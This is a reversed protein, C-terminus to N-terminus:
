LFASIQSNNLRVARIFAHPLFGKVEIASYVTLLLSWFFPVFLERHKSVGVDGSIQEPMNENLDIPLPPSVHLNKQSVILAHTM